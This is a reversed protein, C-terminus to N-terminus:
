EKEPVRQLSAIMWKAIRRRIKDAATRRGKPILDMRDGNWQSARNRRVEAARYFLSALSDIFGLDNKGNEVLFRRMYHMVGVQADEGYLDLVMACVMADYDDWKKNPKLWHYHVIVAGDNVGWYPKWNFALPLDDYEEKYLENFFGQDWCEKYCRERTEFMRFMRERRRRLEPVNILIIGSNFYRHGSYVDYEKRFEPAVAVTKTTLSDWAYDRFFETDIDVYLVQEDDCLDPIDFMLFNCACWDFNRKSYHFEGDSPYANSYYDALKDKFSLRHARVNVGFARFLAFTRDSEQGDYLAYLDLSTKERASRLCNRILDQYVEKNEVDRGTIFFCKM